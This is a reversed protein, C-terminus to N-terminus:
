RRRCPPPFVPSERGPVTRPSTSFASQLSCTIRYATHGSASGEAADAKQPPKRGADQEALRSQETASPSTHRPRGSRRCAAGDSPTWATSLLQLQSYPLDSRECSSRRGDAARGNNTLTTQRRGESQQGGHAKRRHSSRTAPRHFGTETPRKPNVETIPLRVNTERYVKRPKRIGEFRAFPTSRFRKCPTISKRLPSPFDRFPGNRREMRAYFIACYEM